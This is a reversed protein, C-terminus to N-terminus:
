FIKTLFRMSAPVFIIVYPIALYVNKSSFSLKMQVYSISVNLHYNQNKTKNEFRVNLIQPSIQLIM